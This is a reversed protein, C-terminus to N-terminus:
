QELLGAQQGGQEPMPHQAPIQGTLSPDPSGPAPASAAAAPATNSMPGPDYSMPQEDGSGSEDFGFNVAMGGASDEFPPNPTQLITYFLILLIIAHVSVTIFLALRNKRTRFSREEQEFNSAFM